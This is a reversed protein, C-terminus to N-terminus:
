NEQLGFLMRVGSINKSSAIGAKAFKSIEKLALNCEMYHM